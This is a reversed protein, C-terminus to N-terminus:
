CKFVSIYTITLKTHTQTCAKLTLIRVTQM